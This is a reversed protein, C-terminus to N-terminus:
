QKYELQVKDSSYGTMQVALLDYVVRSLLLVM